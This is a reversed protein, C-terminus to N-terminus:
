QEVEVSPESEFHDEELEDVTSIDADMHVAMQYNGSGPVVQCKQSYSMQRVHEWWPFLTAWMRM